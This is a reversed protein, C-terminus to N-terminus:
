SARKDVLRRVIGVIQDVQSPGEALTYNRYVSEGYPGDPLVVEVGLAAAIYTFYTDQAAPCGQADCLPLMVMPAMRTFLVNAFAAGHPGVLVTAGGFVAKARDVDYRQSAETDGPDNRGFVM